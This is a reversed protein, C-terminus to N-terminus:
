LASISEAGVGAMGSITCDNLNYKCIDLQDGVFNAALKENYNEQKKHCIKLLLTDLNNM